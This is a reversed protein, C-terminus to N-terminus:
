IEHVCMLYESYNLCALMDAGLQNMQGCGREAKMIEFLKKASKKDTQPQVHNYLISNADGDDDAREIQRQIRQPIVGGDFLKKVIAIAMIDKLFRDKFREHEFLETM